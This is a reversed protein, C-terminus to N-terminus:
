ACEGVPDRSASFRCTMSFYIIPLALTTSARLTERDEGETWRYIFNPVGPSSVGGTEEAARPDTEYEM